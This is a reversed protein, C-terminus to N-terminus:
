WFYPILWAGPADQTQPTFVFKSGAATVYYKNLLFLFYFFDLEGSKESDRIEFPEHARAWRECHDLWSHDSTSISNMAQLSASAAM